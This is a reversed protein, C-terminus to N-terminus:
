FDSALPVERIFAVKLAWKASFFKTSERMRDYINGPLNNGGKIRMTLQVSRSFTYKVRLVFARRCLKRRMGEIRLM